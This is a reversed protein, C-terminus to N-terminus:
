SYFLFNIRLFSNLYVDFFIFHQKQDQFAKETKVHKAFFLECKM